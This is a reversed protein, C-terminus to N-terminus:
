ESTHEESRPFEDDVGAGGAFLQLLGQLAGVAGNGIDVALHDLAQRCQDVPQVLGQDFQVGGGVAGVAQDVFVAGGDVAEGIVAEGLEAGGQALDTAQDAVQAA